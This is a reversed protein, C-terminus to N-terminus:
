AVPVARSGRRYPNLRAAVLTNQRVRVVAGMADIGAVGFPAERAKLLESALLLCAQRVPEPVAAWGWKATVEVTPRQRDVIFNLTGVASLTTAPWGSRGDVVGNLPDTEYDNASWTTEFVGDDNNDTKVVDVDWADDIVVYTPAVVRFRRATAQTDRTFTRGCYAEVEASASDCAATLMPEITSSVAGVFARLEDATIYSM